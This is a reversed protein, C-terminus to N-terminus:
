LEGMHRLEKEYGMRYFWAKFQDSSIMWDIEKTSHGAIASILTDLSDVTKGFINISSKGQLAFCITCIATMDANSNKKILQELRDVQAQDYQMERLYAVLMGSYLFKVAIQDRGSALSNVYSPLDQYEKGCYFIQPSGKELLLLLRFVAADEDHLLVLQRIGSSLEKDFQQVFDILERRKIVKKAQEWHAKIANALQHLSSVSLTEGDFRGFILPKKPREKVPRAYPDRSVPRMYEGELWRKVEDYGWRSEEDEIILGKILNSFRGEIQSPLEIGSEWARSIEEVSMGSFLSHGLIMRCLVLGFSGYDYAPSMAASWLLTRVRPAYEPTGRAVDILKGNANTYGSVGCDGIVVRKKGDAYFLNSPKIDCHVIGHKHLENLGENISPIIVEHISASTVEAEKELTGEPYYDYIEFYRDQYDGCEVVHAINPHRVNMLFDQIQSSPRWGDHYIKVAYMKGWKRAMYVDAQKGQGSMLSSIIYSDAISEGPMLHMSTNASVGSPAVTVAADINNQGARGPARTEDANIM